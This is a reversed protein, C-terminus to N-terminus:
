EYFFYMKRPPQLRWRPFPQLPSLSPCAAMQGAPPRRQYLASAAAPSVGGRLAGAAGAMLARIHGRWHVFSRSNPEVPTPRSSM